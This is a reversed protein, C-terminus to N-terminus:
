PRQTRTLKAGELKAGRLVAGQLNAGRLDAGQLNAAILNATRLDANRLDAGQLNAGVLDAKELNALGLDAKELNAGFLNAGQLNIGFCIAARLDAGSLNAEQLSAGGLIVGRLTVGTLDTHALDAKEGIRGNSVVWKEHASLIKALSGNVVQRRTPVKNQAPQTRARVEHGRSEAPKSHRPLPRAPARSPQSQSLRLKDITTASRGTNEERRM